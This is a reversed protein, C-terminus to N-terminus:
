AVDYGCRECFGETFTKNGKCKPCDLTRGWYTEIHEDLLRAVVKEKDTM